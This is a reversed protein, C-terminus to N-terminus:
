EFCETKITYEYYGLEDIWYEDRFWWFQFTDDPVFPRPLRSRVQGGTERGQELWETEATKTELSVISARTTIDNLETNLDALKTKVLRGLLQLFADRVDLFEESLQRGMESKNFGPNSEFFQVEREIEKLYGEFKKFRPDTTIKKAVLFPILQKDNHGLGAKLSKNLLSYWEDFELNAELLAGTSEVLPQYTAKTDDLVKNVRDWQCNYYYIIATLVNGEPYFEENFYPAKLSHLAGLARGYENNVTHAWAREFLADSWAESFRPIRKYEVIARRLLTDRAPDGDDLRYAQEYLARGIALTSLDYLEQASKAEAEPGIARRANEFHEIAREYDPEPRDARGVGLRILGLLYQAKAFAPNGEKVTKLFDRADAIKERRFSNRGIIFHVRQLIEPKMKALANANPEYMADIVPPIKFDDDLKDAIDLLGEVAKDFYPHDSGQKVIAEYYRLAALPLEMKEFSAGLGYEAEVILGPEDEFQLVAYFQSAATEYNGGRYADIAKDINQASAPLALGVAAALLSLRLTTKM